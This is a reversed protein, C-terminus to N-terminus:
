GTPGGPGTSLARDVAAFAERYAVVLDAPEGGAMMHHANTLVVTRYAAVAM